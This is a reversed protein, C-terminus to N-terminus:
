IVLVQSVKALRMVRFPFATCIFASQGTKARERGVSPHHFAVHAEMASVPPITLPNGKQVRYIGSDVNTYGMSLRVQRLLTQQKGICAWESLVFPVLLSVLHCFLTFSSIRQVLTFIQWGVLYPICKSSLKLSMKFAARPLGWWGASIRSEHWGSSLSLLSSKGKKLSHPLGGLWIMKCKGQSTIWADHFSFVCLHLSGSVCLCKEVGRCMSLQSNDTMCLLTLLAQLCVSM